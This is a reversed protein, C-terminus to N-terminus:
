PKIKRNALDRLIKRFKIFSKFTVFEKFHYWERNDKGTKQFLILNEMPTKILAYNVKNNRIWSAVMQTSRMWADHFLVYGNQNLLLDVYYFDLFIEDFKHGGDIFAFDIKM